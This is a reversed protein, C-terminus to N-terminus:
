GSDLRPLTRTMIQRARESWHLPGFFHEFSASNRSDFCDACRSDLGFRLGAQHGLEHAATAGVGRGLGEVLRQRPMAPCHAFDRCQVAALELNALVDFRVSSVYAAPYTVGAAGFNLRGYPTDEVRVTRAGTSGEAIRVDFGQFAARMADVAARRVLAQEGASLAEGGVKWTNEFTIAVTLPRPASRCSALLSAAAVLLATIRTHETM